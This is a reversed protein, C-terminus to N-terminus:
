RADRDSGHRGDSQLAADITALSEDLRDILEEHSPQPAAREYRKRIREAVDPNGLLVGYSQLAQRGVTAPLDDLLTIDVKDTRLTKAVASHLDLYLERQEAASCSDEFVVGIDVDSRPTPSGGAYSGFLIALNLPYEELTSRLAARDVANTAADTGGESSM